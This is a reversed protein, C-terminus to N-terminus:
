RQEHRITYEVDKRIIFEDSNHRGLSGEEHSVNSRGDNNLGENHPGEVSAHYRTHNPPCFNIGTSKGSAEDAKDNEMRTYNRTDNSKTGEGGLSDMQYSRGGSGYQSANYGFVTAQTTDFKRLYQNLAPIAASLLSYVVEAQRLLIPRTLAIGANSASSFDSVYKIQLCILVIIPLRLVFCMSAQVKRQLSMHLPFIVVISLCWIVLELLADFLGIVIWRTVLGSCKESGSRIVESSTCGATAAIISGVCWLGCIAITIECYRHKQHQGVAFLRRCLWIASCKGGFLALLFLVDGARLSKAVTHTDSPSLLTYSSGFGGDVTAVMISIFQPVAIVTACVSLWDEIGMNRYKSVLRMGLVMLSYVMFLISMTLVIGRHDNATNHYPRPGLAPIEDSSASM